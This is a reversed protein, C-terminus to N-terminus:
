PNACGTSKRHGVGAAGPSDREGEFREANENKQRMEKIEEEAELHLFKEVELTWM